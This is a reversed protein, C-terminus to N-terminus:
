SVYVSAVSVVEVKNSTDGVFDVKAVDYDRSQFYIPFRGAVYVLLMKFIGSSKTTAAAHVYMIAAYCCNLVDDCVDNLNTTREVTHFM